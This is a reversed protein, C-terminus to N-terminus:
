KFSMRRLKALNKEVSEIKKNLVENARKVALERETHVDKDGHWFYVHPYEKCKGAGSNDFEIDLEIIGKTLCFNTIWCKM